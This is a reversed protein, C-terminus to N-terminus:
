KRNMKRQSLEGSSKYAIVKDPIFFFCAFKAAVRLNKFIKALFGLPLALKLM